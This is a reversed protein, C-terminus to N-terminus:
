SSTRGNPRPWYRHVTRESVGLKAAVEAMRADPKKALVRAVREATSQGSRASVRARDTDAGSASATPVSRDPSDAGESRITPLPATVAPALRDAWAGYDVRDALEAALRDLDLTRVAIEAM